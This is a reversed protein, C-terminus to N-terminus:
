GDLKERAEDFLRQLEIALHETGERVVRRSVRKSDPAAGPLSLPPGVVLRIKVPRILKSGKPMAAESGGIGVPVLPVGARAARYAAGEFLEQLKPGSQRTGEPFVTLPEGGELVELCKHLAERDATGRRVPFAGLATILPGLIPVRWLSDKAMFRVRHRTLHTVLLFDVNSRHVPAIVYPGRRPVYERGDVRVRWYVKSLGVLLVRIAGYFLLSARM